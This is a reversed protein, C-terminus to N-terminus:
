DAATSVALLIVAAPDVGPATTDIMNWGTAGMGAALQAQLVDFSADSAGKPRDAVRRALVRPDGTLMFGHFRVGADRAVREVNARSGPHLFTADLIAPRGCAVTISGLESMEDYVARSIDTAYGDESLTEAPELGFRRKRLMDSALVVAGPPAGLDPAIVNSVTSKGTGSFGGIAILVPPQTDLVDSALALYAAAEDALRAKRDEATTEGAQKALVHARIAARISLYLPLALLGGIDRTRYLYRNFVANAPRGLRLHAMDMLLFAFDYLTDIQTFRDNFEIADFITPRDDHICINRLHLDGHCRRFRGADFRTRCTAALDRNLRDHREILAGVTDPDFPAGIRQSLEIRNEEIVDAMFGLAAPDTVREATRHMEAIDDALVMFQTADVAGAPALVDLTAAPDFRNMEVLWEVPPGDGGLCLAGGSGETVAVARRYITPATRRNLIIENECAARRAAIDRFDLYSTVQAKKLKYARDRTLFVVSIHTDIRDPPADSLAEGSALRDIIEQQDM